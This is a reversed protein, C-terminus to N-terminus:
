FQSPAIWRLADPLLGAIAFPDKHFIWWLILQTIPLALMGGIVIAFLTAVLSSHRQCHEYSRRPRVVSAIEEGPRPEELIDGSDESIAASAQLPPAAPSGPIAPVVFGHDTAAVRFAIKCGRCRIVKDVFAAKMAFTRGCEPCCRADRGNFICTVALPPEKEDNDGAVVVSARGFPVSSTDKPVHFIQRCGRCRIKKGLVAHTGRFIRDCHPCALVEM